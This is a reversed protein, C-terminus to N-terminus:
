TKAERRGEERWIVLGSMAAPLAMMWPMLPTSSGMSSGTVCVCDGEGLVGDGEGGDTEGEGTGLVPLLLPPLVLPPEELLLLLLLLLLLPPLLLM